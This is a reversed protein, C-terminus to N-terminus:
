IFNKIIIHSLILRADIHIITLNVVLIIEMCINFKVTFLLLRQIEANVIAFRNSFKCCFIHDFLCDLIMIIINTNHISKSNIM